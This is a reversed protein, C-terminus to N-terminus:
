TKKKAKGWSDKLSVTRNFVLAGPKTDKADQCFYGKREFQYRQAPDSDAMSPEVKCGKLIKLSEPNIFDKWDKGEPVAGMDELTFLSEYLRVEADVAHPM